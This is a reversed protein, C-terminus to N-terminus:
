AAYSYKGLYPYGSYVELITSDKNFSGGFPYVRNESVGCYTHSKSVAYASSRENKRSAKLKCHQCMMM